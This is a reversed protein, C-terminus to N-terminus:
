RTAHMAADRLGVADNHASQELRSGQGTQLAGGLLLRQPPAGAGRGRGRREVAASARQAEKAAPAAAARKHGHVAQCLGRHEVLQGPLRSRQPTPRPHPPPNVRAHQM